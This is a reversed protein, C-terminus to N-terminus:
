KPQGQVTPWAVDLAARICLVSQTLEPSVGLGNIMGALERAADRIQAALPGNTDLQEIDTLVERACTPAAIDVGGWDGLKVWQRQM